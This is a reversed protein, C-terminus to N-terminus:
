RQHIPTAAIEDGEDADGEEDIVDGDGGGDGDDADLTTAWDNIGPVEEVPDYTELYDFLTCLRFYAREAAAFNPPKKLRRQIVRNLVM